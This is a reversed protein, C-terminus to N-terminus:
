HRNAKVNGRNLQTPVLGVRLLLVLLERLREGLARSAGGDPLLGGDGGGPHSVVALLIEMNTPHVHLKRCLRFM